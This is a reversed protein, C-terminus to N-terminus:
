AAGEATARADYSAVDLAVITALKRTLDTV